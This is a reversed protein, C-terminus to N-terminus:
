SRHELETQGRRESRHLNRQFSADPERWQVVRGGVTMHPDNLGQDASSSSHICPSAAICCGEEDGCLVSMSSTHQKESCLQGVCCQLCCGCAREDLPQKNAPNGMVGTAMCALSTKM